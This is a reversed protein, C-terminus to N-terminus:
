VVRGLRRGSLDEVAVSIGFSRLVSHDLILLPCITVGLSSGKNKKSQSCSRELIEPEVHSARLVARTPISKVGGHDKYRGLSRYCNNQHSSTPKKVIPM